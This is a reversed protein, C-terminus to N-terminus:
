DASGEGGDPVGPGSRWVVDEPGPPHWEALPPYLSTRIPRPPAVYPSEVARRRRASRRTLQVLVMMTLWVLFLVSGVHGPAGISAVLLGLAAFRLARLAGPAGQQRYGARPSMDWEPAPPAEPPLDAVLDDLEGLTVATLAAGVRDALEETTLRGEAAQNRIFDVARERDAHSARLDRRHREFAADSVRGHDRAGRGRARRCTSRGVDPCACSNVRAAVM